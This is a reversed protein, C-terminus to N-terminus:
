TIALLTIKTVNPPLAICQAQGGSPPARGQFAEPRSPLVGVAQSAWRCSLSGADLFAGSLSCCTSRSRRRRRRGGSGSIVIEYLEMGLYWCSTTVYVRRLFLSLCIMMVNGATTGGDSSTASFIFYSEHTTM